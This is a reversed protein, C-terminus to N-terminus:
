KDETVIDGAGGVFEFRYEFVAASVKLGLALHDEDGFVANVVRAVGGHLDELWGIIRHQFEGAVIGANDVPHPGDFLSQYFWAGVDVAHRFFLCQVQVDDEFFGARHRIDAERV